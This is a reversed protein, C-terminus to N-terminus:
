VESFSACINTKTQTPWTLVGNYENDCLDCYFPM